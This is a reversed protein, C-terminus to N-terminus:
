EARMWISAVLITKYLFTLINKFSVGLYMLICSRIETQLPTYLHYLCLILLCYVKAITETMLVAFFDRFFSRM